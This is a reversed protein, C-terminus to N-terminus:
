HNFGGVLIEDIEFQTANKEGDTYMLSAMSYIMLQLPAQDWERAHTPSYEDVLQGDIYYYYGANQPDRLIEYAHWGTDIPIFAYFDKEPLSPISHFFATAHDTFDWGFGERSREPEHISLSVSVDRLSTRNVTRTRFGFYQITTPNLVISNLQLGCNWRREEGLCGAPFFLVLSGNQQGIKVQPDLPAIDYSITQNNFSNDFSVANFDDQLVITDPKFHFPAAIKPDSPTPVATFTTTSQFAAPLDRLNVSALVLIVRTGLL